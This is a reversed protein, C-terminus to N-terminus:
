GYFGRRTQGSSSVISKVMNFDDPTLINKINELELRSNQIHWVV